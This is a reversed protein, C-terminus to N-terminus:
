PHRVVLIKPIAETPVADGGVHGASVVLRTVITLAGVTRGILGSFVKEM